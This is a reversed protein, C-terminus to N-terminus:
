ARGSKRCNGNYWREDRKLRATTMDSSKCLVMLVTKIMMSLRPSLYPFNWRDTCQRDMTRINGTITAAHTCIPALVSASTITIAEAAVVCATKFTASINRRGRGRFGTLSTVTSGEVIHCM